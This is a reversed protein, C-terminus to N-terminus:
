HMYWSVDCLRRRWLEILGEAVEREVEGCIGQEWRDVITPKSFLMCWREIVQHPSWARARQQDVHVVLHYHNSMIAYACVDVAFVYSLQRM